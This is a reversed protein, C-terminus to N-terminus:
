LKEGYVKEFAQAFTMVEDGTRGFVASELGNSVIAAKARDRRTAPDTVGSFMLGFDGLRKALRRDLTMENAILPPKM